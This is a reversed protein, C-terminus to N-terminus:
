DEENVKDLERLKSYLKYVDSTLISSFLDNRFKLYDENTEVYKENNYLDLIHQLEIIRAQLFYKRLKKINENIKLNDKRQLLNILNDYTLINIEDLLKIPVEKMNYLKKFKNGNTKYEEKIFISTYELVSDSVNLVENQLKTGDLTTNMNNFVQSLDQVSTIEPLKNFLTGVMGFLKNLENPNQSNEDNIESPVSSTYKESSSELNTTNDLNAFKEKKNNITKTLMTKFSGFINVINKNMLESSFENDENDNFTTPSSNEHLADSNSAKFIRSKPNQFDEGLQICSSGSDSRFEKDLNKFSSPSDDNRHQDNFNIKFISSPIENKNNLIDDLEDDLEDLYTIEEKIDENILHASTFNDNIGKEFNSSSNESTEIQDLLTNKNNKEM